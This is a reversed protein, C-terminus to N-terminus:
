SSPLQLRLNQQLLRPHRPPQQRQQVDHLAPVQLLRPEHPHLLLLLDLVAEVLHPPHHGVGGLDGGIDLLEADPVYLDEDLFKMYSELSLLDESAAGKGEGGGMEATPAPPPAVTGSYWPQMDHDVASPARQLHPALEYGPRGGGTSADDENLFNVKAKSGRIRHAARDYARAAEELIGFTGLWVCVGKMPDRIEAAWKGWPRRRIGRYLNKRKRKNGRPHPAAPLSTPPSELPLSSPPCLDFAPVVMACRADRLPILDSILSGSGVGGLDGAETTAAGEEPQRRLENRWHHFPLLPVLDCPLVLIGFVGIFVLFIVFIGFVDAFVLFIVFIGFVGDFVLFIVFVGAFVLFIVFIGFVSVFIFVVFVGHDFVARVAVVVRDSFARRSPAIPSASSCPSRTGCEVPCCLPSAL